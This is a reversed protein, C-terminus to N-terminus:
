DFVCMCAPLWGALCAPLYVLLFGALIGAQRREKRVAGSEPHGIEEKKREKKRKTKTSRGAFCSVLKASLFSPCM